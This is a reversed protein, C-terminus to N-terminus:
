VSVSLGLAQRAAREMVDIPPGVGTWLRFAAAGQQVLMGLGNAARLGRARAMRVLTTEAPTYVLDYVFMGTPLLAVDVPSQDETGTGKMGVSTCNLLLSATSVTAPFAEDDYGMARLGAQAGTGSQAMTEVLSQARGASRNAVTVRSVGASLLMFVAARASGGAGLVIAPGTGVTAGEDELSARLGHVDTNHGNLMGNENVVTNVAGVADASPDLHDLLPMIAQKHPITVNAGMVEPRRLSSVRDVLGEAPTEWHEYRADIGLADFAAQQFAPSISHGVPFGIIGALKTM